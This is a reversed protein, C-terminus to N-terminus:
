DKLNPREMKYDKLNQKEMWNEKSSVKSSDKSNLKEKWSVMGIEKMLDKLNQYDM